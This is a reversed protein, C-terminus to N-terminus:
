KKFPAPATTLNLPKFGEATPKAEVIKWWQDKLWGRSDAIALTEVFDWGGCALAFVNGDYDAVNCLAYIPLGEGGEIDSALWAVSRVTFPKNVYSKGSVAKREGALEEVSTAALKRDSIRARVDEAPEKFSDLAIADPNKLYLLVETSTLAQDVTVVPQSAPVVNKSPM